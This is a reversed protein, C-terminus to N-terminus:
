LTFNNLCAGFGLILFIVSSIVLLLGIKKNKKNVATLILGTILLMPSAYMMYIYFPKYEM